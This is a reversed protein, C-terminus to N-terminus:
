SFNFQSIDNESDNSRWDVEDLGRRFALPRQLLRRRSALGALGLGSSMPAPRLGLGLQADTLADMDFPPYTVHSPLIVDGTSHNAITPLWGLTSNVSEALHRRATIHLCKPATIVMASQVTSPKSLASSHM